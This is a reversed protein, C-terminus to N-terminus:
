SLDWFAQTPRDLAVRASLVVTVTGHRQVAQNEFDWAKWSGQVPVTARVRIVGSNAQELAIRPKLAAILPASGHLSGPIPRTSDPLPCRPDNSASALCGALLRQVAQEVQERLGPTISAQANAVIRTDALRVAPQDLVQLGPNDVALPLAGPFLTVAAAPLRRGALSLRPAGASGASIIVETAVRSLWWSPGRRVLQARDAVVRAGSGFLLRYRVEVTAVSGLRTSHLVSIDALQAAQLQQRLVVSTLFEGRPPDVAFALAGPADGDALAHFFANAVSEPDSRATYRHAASLGLVVALVGSLLAAFV